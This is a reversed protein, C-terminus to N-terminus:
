EFGNVWTMRYIWEKGVRREESRIVYNFYDPLGGSMNVGIGERRGSGQASGETVTRYVLVHRCQGTAVPCHRWTSTYRVTVSPEACPLPRRSPMPTLM